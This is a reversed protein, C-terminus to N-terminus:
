VCIKPSFTASFLSEAPTSFKSGGDTHEVTVNFECTVLDVLEGGGKENVRNYADLFSRQRQPHEGEDALWTEFGHAGGGTDGALPL